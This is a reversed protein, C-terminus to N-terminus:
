RIYPSRCHHHGGSYALFLNTHPNYSRYRHQCYHLHHSWLPGHGFAYRHGHYRYHAARHLTVRQHVIVTTEVRAVVGGVLHGHGYSRYVGHAEATPASVVVLALCALAAYALSSLSKM